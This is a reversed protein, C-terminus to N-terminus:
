SVFYWLEQLHELLKFFDCGDIKSYIFCKLFLIILSFLIM